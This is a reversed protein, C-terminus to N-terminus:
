RHLSINSAQKLSNISGDHREYFSVGVRQIHALLGLHDLKRYLSLDVTYPLLPDDLQRELQLLEDFTLGTEIITLDINSGQKYNEKARSDYLM